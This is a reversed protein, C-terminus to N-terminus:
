EDSTAEEATIVPVDEVSASPPEAGKMERDAGDEGGGGKTSGPLTARTFVIWDNCLIDYPNLEQDLIIQIDSLNRFSKFAVEDDRSLVLLIRGELALTDLAAM